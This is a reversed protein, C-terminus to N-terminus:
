RWYSHVWVKKDGQYVWGGQIWVAGPHPRPGWYGKEWVWQKDILDWYGPSWVFSMNSQTPVVERPPPPPGDASAQPQPPQETSCGAFLALGAALSMIKMLTNKKM